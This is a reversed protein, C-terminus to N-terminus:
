RTQLFICSFETWLSLANARIVMRITTGTLMTVTVMDLLTLIGMDAVTHIATIIEMSIVPKALIIIRIALKLAWQNKMMLIPITTDEEAAM